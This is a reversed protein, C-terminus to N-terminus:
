ASVCVPLCVPPFGRKFHLQDKEGLTNEEGNREHKEKNKWVKVCRGAQRQIQIYIYTCTHRDRADWLQWELAGLPRKLRQPYSVKDGSYFHSMLFRRRGTAGPTIVAARVLVFPLRASYVPGATKSCRPNPLSQLSYSGCLKGDWVPRTTFSDAMKSSWVWRTSCGSHIAGATKSSQPNSVRLKHQPWVHAVAELRVCANRHLQWGNQITLHLM